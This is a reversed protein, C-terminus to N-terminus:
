LGGEINTTVIVYESFNGHGYSTCGAMKLKYVKSKELGQITTTLSSPCGYVVDKDGDLALIYCDLIGHVHEDPIAKWTVTISSFSTSHAM